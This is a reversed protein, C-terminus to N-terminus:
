KYPFLFYNLLLYLFLVLLLPFTSYEEHNFSVIYKKFALFFTESVNLNLPICIPLNSLGYVNKANLFSKDLSDAFALVM